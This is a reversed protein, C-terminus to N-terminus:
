GVALASGLARGRRVTSMLSVGGRFCGAFVLGPEAAETEGLAALLAAHGSHYQPISRPWRAVWQREPAGRAGLLEGLERDVTSALAADDLLGLEPSRSGGLFCALMVKGAPACSPFVSSPFLVGLVRRGERRPALLGFGDLPHEVQGRDYGRVVLTVPPAAVREAEALLRAPPHDFPLSAWAWPPATVILHRCRAGREAGDAERWAVDWGAPGRAIRTTEAGLRLSDPPLASVMAETLRAMGGVFGVIRRPPGKRRALGLLISGHTRELEVLSPMAHEAVLRGPDGAFIGNVMPDVLREAAQEGLRRQAFGLLSEGPEGGRPVLPEALLRLKGGLSLLGSRLLSLPSGTLAHLEGGWAIFRRAAALDADRMSPGLGLAELIAADGAEDLQLTHPGLEATWGDERATRVAGGARDSPELVRVAGGRAALASAVALGAPGAGLIIADLQMAWNMAAKERNAVGGAATERM